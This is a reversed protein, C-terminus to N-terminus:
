NFEACIMSAIEINDPQEDGDFEIEYNIPLDINVFEADSKIRSVNDLIEDRNKNYDM